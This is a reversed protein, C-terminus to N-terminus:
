NSILDIGMLVNHSLRLTYAGKKDKVSLEIIRFGGSSRNISITLLGIEGFKQSFIWKHGV